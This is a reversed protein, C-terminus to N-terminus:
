SWTRPSSSPSTSREMFVLAKLAPHCRDQVPAVREIVNTRNEPSRMAAITIAASILLETPCDWPADHARIDSLGRERLGDIRQPHMGVKSGVAPRLDAWAMAVCTVNVAQPLIVAFSDEHRYGGCKCVIHGPDHLKRLDEPTDLVAALFRNEGIQRQRVDIQNADAQGVGM